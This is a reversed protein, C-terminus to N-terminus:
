ILLSDSYMERYNSSIFIQFIHKGPTTILKFTLSDLKVTTSVGDISYTIKSNVVYKEMYPFTFKYVAQNSSIGKIAESSILSFPNALRKSEESHLNFSILVAFLIIRSMM